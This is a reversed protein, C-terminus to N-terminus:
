KKNLDFMFNALLLLFIAVPIFMLLYISFGVLFQYFDIFSTNTVKVFSGIFLLPLFSATEGLLLYNIWKVIWKKNISYNYMKMIEIIIYILIFFGVIVSWSLGVNILDKAREPTYLYSLFTPFFMVAVITFQLRSQWNEIIKNSNEM